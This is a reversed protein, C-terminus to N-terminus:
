KKQNGSKNEEAYLLKKVFEEAQKETEVKGELQALILKTLIKGVLPSPKIGTLSIIKRGDLLPHSYEKWRKYFRILNKFKGYNGFIKSLVGIPYLYPEFRKLYFHKGELSELHLSKLAEYGEITNKIFRKLDGGFPYNELLGKGKQPLTYFFVALKTATDTSYKGLFLNEFIKFNKKLKQLFGENKLQEFKELSTISNPNLKADFVAIDVKDESLLGLTKYTKSFSFIEMLENVVREKSINRILFAKEKILGRTLPDISFSLQQALRYARLIRLPDEDFSTKSVERIIGKKLDESGGFPDVINKKKKLFDSLKWAMANITFDRHSLDEFLDTYSAIDLRIKGEKSPLLVTYVKERLPLNEKEFGFFNGGLVEALKQAYLNAEGKVLLDIDRPAKNLLLDRVTGGVLYSDKPLIDAVRTLLEKM